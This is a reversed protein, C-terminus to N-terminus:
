NKRMKNLDLNRRRGRTFLYRNTFTSEIIEYSM